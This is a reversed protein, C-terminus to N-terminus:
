RRRSQFSAMDVERNARLMREGLKPTVQSTGKAVVSRWIEEREDLRMAM